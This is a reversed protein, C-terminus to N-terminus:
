LTGGCTSVDNLSQSLGGSFNVSVPGSGVNQVAENWCTHSKAPADPGGAGPAIAAVEDAGGAGPTIDALSGPANGTPLVNGTRPLATITVRLPGVAPRFGNFYHFIQEEGALDIGDAAGGTGNGAVLRGAPRAPCRSFCASRRIM